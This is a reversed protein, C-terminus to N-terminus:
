RCINRLIFKGPKGKNINFIVPNEDTEYNEKGIYMWLNKERPPPQTTIILKASIRITYLLADLVQTLVRSISHFIRYKFSATESAPSTGFVDPRVNRFEYFDVNSIRWIKRPFIATAGNITVRM